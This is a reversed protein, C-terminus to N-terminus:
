RTLQAAGLAPDAGLLARVPGGGAATHFQVTDNGMQNIYAAKVPVLVLLGGIALSLAALLRFFWIRSM